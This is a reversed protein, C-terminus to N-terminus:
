MFNPRTYVPVSNIADCEHFNLMIKRLASWATNLDSQFRLTIIAYQVDSENRGILSILKRTLSSMCQALKQRLKRFFIYSLSFSNSMSITVYVQLLQAMTPVEKFVPELVKDGRKLRCAIIFDGKLSPFNRHVLFFYKHDCFFINLLFLNNSVLSDSKENRQRIPEPSSWYSKFGFWREIIKNRGPRGPNSHSVGVKKFLLIGGTSVQCDIEWNFTKRYFLFCSMNLAYQSLRILKLHIGDQNYSGYSSNVAKKSEKVLDKLSRNVM